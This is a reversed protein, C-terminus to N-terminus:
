GDELRSAIEEKESLWVVQRGLLKMDVEKSYEFKVVCVEIINM